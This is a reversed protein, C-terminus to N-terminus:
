RRTNAEVADFAHEAQVGVALGFPFYAPGPRASSGFSYNTAGWAFAVGVVMFMLGSWFDKESKIKLHQEETVLSDPSLGANKICRGVAAGSEYDGCIRPVPNCAGPTTEVYPGNWPEKELVLPGPAQWVSM